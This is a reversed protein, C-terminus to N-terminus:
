KVYKWRGRAVLAALGFLILAMALLAALGLGIEALGAGGGLMEFGEVAWANPTIKAFLKMVPSMLALPFFTGGLIAFLLMLATGMSSVQWPAKAFAALLIGWGTAAATVALILATVALPDGWKLGFLLTAALVLIGVQAVGTTFIGLVKGALLQVQTTPTALIRGLTGAEREALLSRGGQTTTYMLFVVAMGPALYALPNTATQAEGSETMVNLAILSDSNAEWNIRQSMAEAMAGVQEPPVGRMMWQGVSVGVSKVGIEMQAIIGDVIDNVVSAGIPSGPNSYIEVPFNEGQAGTQLNPLIGDSFGAPIIVAASAKDDDVLQRAAEVTDAKSAILLDALDESLLAAELSQGLQGSDLNVVAVPIGEVTTQGGSFGGTVAGIGLTLLFPALLMFILAARDRWVLQLDKLTISLIRKM